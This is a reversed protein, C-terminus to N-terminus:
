PISAESDFFGNPSPRIPCFFSKVLPQIDFIMGQPISRLHGWFLPPIRAQAQDLLREKLHNLLFSLLPPRSCINCTTSGFKLFRDFIAWFHWKQGNPPNPNEHLPCNAISGFQIIMAALQCLATPEVVGKAMVNPKSIVLM